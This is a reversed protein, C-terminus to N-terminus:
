HINIGIRTIKQKLVKEQYYCVILFYNDFKSASNEFTAGFTVYSNHYM